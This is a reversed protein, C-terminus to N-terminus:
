MREELFTELEDLTTPLNHNEYKRHCFSCEYDISVSPGYFETGEYLYIRPVIRGHCIEEAIHGNINQNRNTAWIESKGNKFYAVRIPRNCKITM